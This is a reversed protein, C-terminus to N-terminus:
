EIFFNNYAHYSIFQYACVCVPPNPALALSSLRQKHRSANTQRAKTYTHTYKYLTHGGTDFKPWSLHLPSYHAVSCLFLLSPGSSPLCQCAASLSCLVCQLQVKKAQWHPLLLLKMQNVHEDDVSALRLPSPLLLSCPGSSRLDETLPCCCCLLLQLGSFCDSLLEACVCVVKSYVCVCQVFSLTAMLSLSTSCQTGCWQLLTTFVLAVNDSRWRYVCLQWLQLVIGM